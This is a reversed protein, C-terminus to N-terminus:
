GRLMAYVAMSCGQRRNEELKYGPALRTPGRCHSNEKRVKSGFPWLPLDVQKM